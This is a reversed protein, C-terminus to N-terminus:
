NEMLFSDSEFWDILSVKDNTKVWYDVLRRQLVQPVFDYGIGEVHYSKIDGNLSDPQALISGHPDVGVVICKPLKEKIKSAIGTITGGTGATLVVMDVKGQCQAIIEEATGDYHALPNSPNSYQDLIHSNPIEANLRNALGIHSEPSDFASFPVTPTYLWLM